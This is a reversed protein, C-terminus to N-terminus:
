VHDRNRGMRWSDNILDKLFFGSLFLVCFKTHWQGISIYILIYNRRNLGQQIEGTVKLHGESEKPYVKKKFQGPRFASIYFYSFHFFFEFIGELGGVPGAWKGM